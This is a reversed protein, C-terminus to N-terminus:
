LVQVHLCYTGGFSRYMEALSFIKMNLLNEEHGSSQSGVSTIQGHLPRRLHSLQKRSHSATYNPLDNRVCRPILNRSQCSNINV